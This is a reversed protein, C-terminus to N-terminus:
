PASLSFEVLSSTTSDFRILRKGDWSFALPDIEDTLGKSM